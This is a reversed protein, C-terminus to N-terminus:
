TDLIHHIFHLIYCHITVILSLGSLISKRKGPTNFFIGTAGPEEDM